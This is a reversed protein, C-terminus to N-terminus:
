MNCDSDHASHHILIVSHMSYM